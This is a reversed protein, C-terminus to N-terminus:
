VSVFLKCENGTCEPHADTHAALQQEYSELAAVAQQPTNVITFVRYEEPRVMMNRSFANMVDVWFDGFLILPKHHGYYLRAVGWAMAFEAITGTGGNFIIYADGMELLKQSRAVYNAEEFALDAYNSATPGEFMTAKEPRYYVVQTKGNGEKAGVTAALMVGPGGGNVVIRGSQAVLTATVRANDFNPEGPNGQSCGFFAISNLKM